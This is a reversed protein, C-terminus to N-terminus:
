CKAELGAIAANVEESRPWAANTAFKHAERILSYDTKGTYVLGPIESGPLPERDAAEQARVAQQLLRAEIKEEETLDRVSVGEEVWTIACNEIGLMVVGLDYHCNRDINYIRKRSAM